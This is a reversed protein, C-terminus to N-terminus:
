NSWIPPQYDPVPKEDVKRHFGTGFLDPVLEYGQEDYLITVVPEVYASEHEQKPEPQKNWFAM